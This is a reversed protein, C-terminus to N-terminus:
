KGLLRQESTKDFLLIEKPDFRFCVEDYLQINVKRDVKMYFLHNQWALRIYCEDGLHEVLVIRGRM